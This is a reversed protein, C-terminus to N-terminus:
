RFPSWFYDYGKGLAKGLKRLHDKSPCGIENRHAEYEEETYTDREWWTNYYMTENKNKKVLYRDNFDRIMAYVRPSIHGKKLEEFLFEGYKQYTSDYHYLIINPLDSLNITAFSAYKSDEGISDGIGIMWTGPYGKEKFISDLILVHQKNVKDFKRELGPRMIQVFWTNNRRRWDQDIQILKMLEGKLEWDVKNVYISRLSDYQQTIENWYQTNKLDAIQYKMSTTDLFFDPNLGFPIGKLVFQIAISDLGFKHAIQAAMFCDRPFLTEYSDFVQSYTKVCGLTDNEIFQKEALRCKQHYGLYNSQSFSLLQSLLLIPLLFHRM